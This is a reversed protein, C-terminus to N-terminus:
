DGYFDEPELNWNSYFEYQRDIDSYRFHADLPLKRLRRLTKMCKLARRTDELDPVEAGSQRYGDDRVIKHPLDMVLASSASEKLVLSFVNYRLTYGCAAHIVSRPNARARDLAAIVAQETVLRAKDEIIGASAEACWQRVDDSVYLQMQVNHRGAFRRASPRYASTTIFMSDNACGAAKAGHLAQVAQLGIPRDARYKKAQVLTLLDGIPDRQLLTLDVGGDGRGPGLEVHFGQSEMLEAILKEFDRWHLRYLQSPNTAFYEYLESNLADFDGQILGCIWKWRFYEKYQAFLCPDYAEAPFVDLRGEDFPAAHFGFSDFLMACEDSLRQAETSEHVAGMGPYIALTALEGAARLTTLVPAGSDYSFSKVVPRFFADRWLGNALAWARFASHFEEIRTDLQSDCRPNHMCRLVEIHRPLFTCSFAHSILHVPCQNLRHLGAASGTHPSPIQGGIRHRPPM